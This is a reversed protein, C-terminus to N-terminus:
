SRGPTAREGHPPIYQLPYDGTVPASIEALDCGDDGSEPSPTVQVASDRPVYLGDYPALDFGQGAVAVSARGRLGILGTGHTGTAFEVPADGSDLIIRGYHLHRVAASHPALSRTRGKQNHTARIVCSETGITHAASPM